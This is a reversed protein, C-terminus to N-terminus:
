VTIRRRPGPGDDTFLSTVMQRRRCRDALEGRRRCWPDSSAATWRMPDALLCRLLTRDQSGNPGTAVREGPRRSPEPGSSTASQRLGSSRINVTVGVPTRRGRLRIGLGTCRRRVAVRQRDKDIKRSSCLRSQHGEQVHTIGQLSTVSASSPNRRERRGSRRAENDLRVPELPKRRAQEANSRM